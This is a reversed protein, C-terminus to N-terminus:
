SEKRETGLGCFNDLAQINPTPNTAAFCHEHVKEVITQWFILPKTHVKMPENTLNKSEEAPYWFNIFM